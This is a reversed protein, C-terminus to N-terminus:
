YINYAGGFDDLIEMRGGGKVINTFVASFPMSLPIYLTFTHTSTVTYMTYITTGSSVSHQLGLQLSAMLTSSPTQVCM